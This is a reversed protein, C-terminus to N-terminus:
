RPILGTEKLYADIGPAISRAFKSTLHTADWKVIQGNVVPDCIPLFPCVLRDFDPSWVNADRRALQRFYREIPDPAANVLYRCEEIV